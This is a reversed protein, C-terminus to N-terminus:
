PKNEAKRWDIGHKELVSMFYKNSKLVSEIKEQQRNIIEQLDHREALKEIKSNVLEQVADNTLACEIQACIRKAMSDIHKKPEIAAEPHFRFTQKIGGVVAPM